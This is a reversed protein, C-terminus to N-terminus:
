EGFYPLADPSVPIEAPATTEYPHPGEDSNQGKIIISAGRLILEAEEVVALQEEPTIVLERAVTDIGHQSM